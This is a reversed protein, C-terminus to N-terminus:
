HLLAVRRVLTRGEAELRALYLGSPLSGEAEDLTLVARHPGATLPGEHLTRVCRGTADFLRLRVPGDHALSWALTVARRAPSPFPAAFSLTPAADDAALTGAPVLTVYASENGHVDVACVKYVYASGAVDMHETGTITALHNGSSPTFSPNTGRHLHYCALDADRPATWQMTTVGSAYTGTFPSPASPALDDVSYGSLPESMWYKSSATSRAVVLFSTLPNSGAVSDSLTSVTLGYNPFLHLATVTTVYEWALTTADRTTFLYAPVGPEPSQAPDIATAAGSAIAAQAVAADISRFVLYEGLEPDAVADLPSAQWALRLWGGQDNPVDSVSTIVPEPSGLKGFREIRQAYVDTAAGNRTDQWAVILGGAGDTTSVLETQEDRATSLPTNESGYPTTFWTATGTASLHQAYVDTGGTRQDQWAIVAGGSGDSVPAGFRQMGTAM